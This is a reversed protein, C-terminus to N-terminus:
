PAKPEDTTKHPGGPVPFVDIALAIAFEEPLFNMSSDATDLPTLSM